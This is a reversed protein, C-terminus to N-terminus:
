PTEPNNNRDLTLERVRAEIQTMHQEICEDIAKHVDAEAAIVEVSDEYRSGSIEVEFPLRLLDDYKQRLSKRVPHSDMNAAAIEVYRELYASTSPLTPAEHKTWLELCIYAYGDYPQGNPDINGALGASGFMRIRASGYFLARWKGADEIVTGELASIVNTLAQVGRHWGNIGVTPLAAKLRKLVEVDEDNLAKM